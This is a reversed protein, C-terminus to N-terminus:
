FIDDVFSKLVATKPRYMEYEAQDSESIYVPFGQLRKLTCSFSSLVSTIMCRVLAADNQHKTSTM